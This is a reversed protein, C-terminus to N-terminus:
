RSIHTGKGAEYSFSDRCELQVELPPARLHIMLLFELPRAVMSFSGLTATWELYVQNGQVSEVTVRLILEFYSPLHSVRGLALMPFGGLVFTM